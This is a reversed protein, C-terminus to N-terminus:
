RLKITITEVGPPLEYFKWAKKYTAVPSYVKEDLNYVQGKIILCLNIDEAASRSVLFENEYFGNALEDRSVPVGDTPNGLLWRM